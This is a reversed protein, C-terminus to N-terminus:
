RYLGKLRGWSSAEVSTTFLNWCSGALGFDYGLPVEPEPPTATTWVTGYASNDCTGCNVLFAPLFTGESYQVVNLVFDGNGTVTDARVSSLGLTGALALVGDSFSAPSSANPPDVGYAHDPPLADEYIGFQGFRYIVTRLSGQWIENQAVMGRAWFTYSSVTPQWPLPLLVAGWVDQHVEGVIQLEDGAVFPAAWGGTEWLNGRLGAFPAIITGSPAIPDLRDDSVPSLGVLLAVVSWSELLM